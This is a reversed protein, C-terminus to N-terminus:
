KGWVSKEGKKFITMINTNKLDGPIDKNKWIHLIFEYLRLVLEDGGVKFIEALIGYLGTAKNNKTEKSPYSSQYPIAKRRTPPLFEITANMVTSELNLLAEFYEKWRAQISRNDKLLM